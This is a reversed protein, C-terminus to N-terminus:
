VLVAMVRYFITEGNAVCPWSMKVSYEENKHIIKDLPEPIIGNLPKARIFWECVSKNILDPYNFSNIKMRRPYGKIGSVTQETNTVSQTEVDFEGETVKVYDILVGHADILHKATLDFNSFM